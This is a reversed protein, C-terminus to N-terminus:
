VMASTDLDHNERGDLAGDTQKIGFVVLFSPEFDDVVHFPVGVSEHDYCVKINPWSTKTARLMDIYCTLIDVSMYISLGHCVGTRYYSLGCYPRLSTSTSMIAICMAKRTGGLPIAM